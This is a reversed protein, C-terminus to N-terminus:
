APPNADGNAPAEGVTKNLRKKMKEERKKKKKEEVRRKDRGYQERM